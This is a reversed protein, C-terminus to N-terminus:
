QQSSIFNRIVMPQPSSKEPNQNYSSWDNVRDKIEQRVFSPSTAYINHLLINSPKM